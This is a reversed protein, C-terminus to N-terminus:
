RRNAPARTLSEEPRWARDLTSFVGRPARAL